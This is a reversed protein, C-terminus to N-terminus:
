IQPKAALHPFKKELLKQKSRKLANMRAKQRLAKELRLRIFYKVNPTYFFRKRKHRANLYWPIPWERLTYWNTRGLFDHRWEGPKSKEQGTQLLRLATEREEVVEDLRKMSTEVKELREPSPMPLRQRKAEQQLTLLM